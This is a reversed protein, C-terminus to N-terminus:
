KIENLNGSRASDCYWADEHGLVSVGTMDVRVFYEETADTNFASFPQTGKINYIVGYRSKDNRKM